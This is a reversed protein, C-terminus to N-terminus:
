GSAVHWKLLYHIVTHSIVLPTDMLANSSKIHLKKKKKLYSLIELRFECVRINSSRPISGVGEYLLPAKQSPPNGNPRIGLHSHTIKNLLLVNCLFSIEM